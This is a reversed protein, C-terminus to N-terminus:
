RLVLTENAILGIFLLTEDHEQTRFEMGGGRRRLRFGHSLGLFFLVLRLREHGTLGGRGAFDRNGLRRGLRLATRTCRAFSRTAIARRLLAAGRRARAFLILAKHSLRKRTLCWSM